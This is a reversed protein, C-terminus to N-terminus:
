LKLSFRLMVQAASNSNSNPVPSLVIDMYLVMEQKGAVVASIWLLLNLYFFMCM